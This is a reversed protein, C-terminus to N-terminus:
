HTFLFFKESIYIPIEDDITNLLFSLSDEQSHWIKLNEQSSDLPMQQQQLYSIQNNLRMHEVGLVKCNREYCSEQLWCLCCGIPM